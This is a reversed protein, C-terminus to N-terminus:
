VAKERDEILDKEMEELMAPSVIEACPEPEPEHPVCLVIRDNPCNEDQLVVVWHLNMAHFARIEQGSPLRMADYRLMGNLEAIAHIEQWRETSVIVHTVSNDHLSAFINRWQDWRCRVPLRALKVDFKELRFVVPEQMCQLWLWGREHGPLAKIMATVFHRFAYAADEM